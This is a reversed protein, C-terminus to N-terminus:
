PVTASLANSASFGEPGAPDLIWVQAYFAAGSPAGGLWSGLLTLEGNEDTVRLYVSDLSPVLTGGIFPQYLTSFGIVVRALAGPLANSLSLTTPPLEPSGTGDLRPHGTSGALSLGLNEWVGQHLFLMWVAGLDDSQTVGGDDDFRAGV